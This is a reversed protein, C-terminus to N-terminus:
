MAVPATAFNATLYWEQYFLSNHVSLFVCSNPRTQTPDVSVVHAHEGEPPLVHQVLHLVLKSSRHVCPTQTHMGVSIKMLSQYKTKAM